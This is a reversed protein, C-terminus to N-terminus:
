VGKNMTKQRSESTANSVSDKNGGTLITALTTPIKNRLCPIRSIDEPFADPLLLVFLFRKRINDHTSKDHVALLLDDLFRIYAICTSYETFVYMVGNFIKVSAVYENLKKLVREKEKQVIELEIAFKISNGFIALDIYADPVIGLEPFSDFDFGHSNYNDLKSIAKVFTTLRLEHNLHEINFYTYQTDPLFYLSAQGLSYYYERLDLPNSHRKLVAHKSLNSIVRYMKPKDVSKSFENVLELTSVLKWKKVYKVLELAISNDRTFLKKM